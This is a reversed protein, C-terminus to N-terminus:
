RDGRDIEPNPQEEPPRRNRRASRCRDPAREAERRRLTGSTRAGSGFGAARRLSVLPAAHRGLVLLCSNAKGAPDAELDESGQAGPMVPALEIEPRGLLPGDQRRKQQAPANGDPGLPEDVIDPARVRRAGRDHRQAGVDPPQATGDAVATLGAVAATVAIVAALAAVANLAAVRRDDRRPRSVRQRRRCPPHIEGVELLQGCSGARKPFPVRCLSVRQVALCEFEPHPGRQGADGTRMSLNLADPETLEPQRHELLVHVAGQPEAEVRLGHGSQGPRDRLMRQVLPQPFQLHECQVARSALGVCEGDVLVDAADEVLLQAHFGAGPQPIRMLADQGGIRDGRVPQRRRRGLGSTGAAVPRPLGDRRLDTRGLQWRGDLVEHAPLGFDVREELARGARRLRGREDAEDVSHRSDALRRQRHPARGHERRMEGASRQIDVQPPEVGAPLRRLRGLHQGVEQRGEPRGVLRGSEREARM